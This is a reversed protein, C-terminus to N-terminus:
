FLGTANDRKADTDTEMRQRFPQRLRSEVKKKVYRAANSDPVIGCVKRRLSIGELLVRGTKTCPSFIVQGDRTTLEILAKVIKPPVAEKLKVDCECHIINKSGFYDSFAEMNFDGVGHSLINDQITQDFPRCFWLIPRYGPDLRGIRWGYWKKDSDSLVSGVTRARFFSQTLVWPLVDRLEFGFSSVHSLIKWDRIAPFVFLSGGPVLVRYYEDLLLADPIIDLIILHVSQDRIRRIINPNGRIILNGPDSMGDLNYDSRYRMKFKISTSGQGQIPIRYSIGVLLTLSFFTILKRLILYM